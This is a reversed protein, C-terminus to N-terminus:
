DDWHTNILLISWNGHLYFDARRFYMAASFWTKRVNVADYAYEQNQAQAKAHNALTYLVQTHYRAFSGTTTKHRIRWLDCQGSSSFSLTLPAM